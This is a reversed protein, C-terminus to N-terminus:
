PREKKSRITLYSLLFAAIPPVYLAAFYAPVFQGQSYGDFRLGADGFGILLCIAWCGFITGSAFAMAFKSITM